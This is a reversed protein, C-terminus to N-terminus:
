PLRSEPLGLRADDTLVFTTDTPATAETTRRTLGALEEAVERCRDAVDNVEYYDDPKVYLELRQDADRASVRLFWGPTMVSQETASVALLYDRPAAPSGRAADFMSLLSRASLGDFAPLNSSFHETDVPLEFWDALTAFLDAPQVLNQSRDAIRHEAPMRVILPVRLLEGYLADDVLGVRGHEGVPFSRPASLVFLADRLTAHEDIAALLVDLCQDVLTVQGAYAHRIGLIQDPDADATLHLRPPIVLSPPTPDDEDAYQNCLETPADWTRGLAGTHLWYLVARSEDNSTSEGFQREISEMSEVAGAVFDALATETWDDARESPVSDAEILVRQSFEATLPHDYISTDDTILVTTIGREACARMLTCRDDPSLGGHLATPVGTWYAQYTHELQPSDVIARDFLAAECALRNLAPTQVWTNGYPGLYGCHLLDVILCIARKM